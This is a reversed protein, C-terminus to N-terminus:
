RLLPAPLQRYAPDPTASSPRSTLPSVTNQAGTISKAPPQASDPTEQQVADPFPQGALVGQLALALNHNGARAAYDAATLGIENKLTADAGQLLLLRVTSVHGGRAALMLPTSKNPAEADIYAAHDLLLTVISDSGNIAAYHLATWGTGNPEAGKELLKEVMEDRALFAALMLATDGNGARTDLQVRPAALLIEFSRSANDRVAEMLATERREGGTQNVDHGKKLLQRVLTAQDGNLALTMDEVPGAYAFSVAGACCLALMLSHMRM